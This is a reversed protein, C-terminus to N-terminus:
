ARHPTSHQRGRGAVLFRELALPPMTEKGPHKQLPEAAIGVQALVAVDVGELQRIVDVVLHGPQGFLVELTALFGVHVVGSVRELDHATTLRTSRSFWSYRWM